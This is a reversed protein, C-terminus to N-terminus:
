RVAGSNLKIRILRPNEVRQPKGLRVISIFDELSPISVEKHYLQVFDILDQADSNGEPLGSIILNNKRKAIEEVEEAAQKLQSATLVSVPETNMIGSKVERLSKSIEDQFKQNNNSVAVIRDNTSKIEDPMRKVAEAFSKQNVGFIM